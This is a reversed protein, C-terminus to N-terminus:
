RGSTKTLDGRWQSKYCSDAVRASERHGLSHLPKERRGQGRKVSCRSSRIEQQPTTMARQREGQLTKVVM